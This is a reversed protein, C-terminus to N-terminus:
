ILFRDRLGLGDIAQDVSQAFFGIGGAEKVGKLFAVQNMYHKFAKGDSPGPPKWTERKTEIAFMIGKPKLCGILDSVGPKSMMGQWANYHFIGLKTLMDRIAAKIQAESQPPIKIKENM